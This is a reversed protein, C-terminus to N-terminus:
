FCPFRINNLFLLSSKPSCQKFKLPNFALQACRKDQLNRVPLTKMLSLPRLDMQPLTNISTLAKPSPFLNIKKKGKFKKFQKWEM